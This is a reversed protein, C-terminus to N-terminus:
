TMRRSSMRWTMRWTMWGGYWGGHWGGHHCEAHWWEDEYDEDNWGWDDVYPPWTSTMSKYPWRNSNSIMDPRPLRWLILCRRVLPGLDHPEFMPALTMLDLTMLDLTMRNSTMLDSTMLDSCSPWPWSTRPWSTLVHPGLDHPRLDHPELDHPEHDHPGFLLAMTMLDSGSTWFHPWTWSSNVEAHNTLGSEALLKM